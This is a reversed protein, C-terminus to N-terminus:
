TPTISAARHLPVYAPKVWTAGSDASRYAAGGCEVVIEKGEDDIRMSKCGEAVPKKQAIWRQDAKRLFLFSESGYLVFLGARRAVMSFPGSGGLEPLPPPISAPAAAGARLYSLGRPADKTGLSIYAGEGDSAVAIDNRPTDIIRGVFEEWSAGPEKSTFIRMRNDVVVLGRAGVAWIGVPQSRSPLAARGVAGGEWTLVQGDSTVFTFRDGSRVGGLVDALTGPDLIQVSTQAGDAKGKNLAVLTGAKGYVVATAESAVVHPGRSEHFAIARRLEPLKDAALYKGPALVLDRSRLSAVLEPYNTELFARTEAGNDVVVVNFQRSESTAARKTDGKDVVPLYVLLGLNTIRGPEVRFKRDISLTTYHVQTTSGPIYIYSPAAAGRAPRVAAEREVVQGLLHGAARVKVLTHEGARLPIAIYGDSMASARLSGDVDISANELASLGPVYLRAVLLGEEPDLAKPLEPISSKVCGQAAVLLAGAVITRLIGRSM